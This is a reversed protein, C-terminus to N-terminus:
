APLPEIGDGRSPHFGLLAAAAPLLAVVPM